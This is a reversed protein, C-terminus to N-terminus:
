FLKKYKIQFDTVLLNNQIDSLNTKKTEGNKLDVLISSKETCFYEPNTSYMAAILDYVIMGAYGGFKSDTMYYQEYMKVADELPKSNVLFKIDSARVIYKRCINAPIMVTKVSSELVEKLALPDNAANFEGGKETNGNEGIAGAMFTVSRINKVVSPKSSILRAINTLPGLALIDVPEKQEQILDQLEKFSKTGKKSFTRNNQWLGNEGHSSATIQKGKLPKISGSFIPIDQRGNWKLIQRANNTCDKLSSNGFVTSIALVDLRSKLIFNIALADDVGPDTDIILKGPM